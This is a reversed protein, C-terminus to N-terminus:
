ANKLKLIQRYLKFLAYAILVYIMLGTQIGFISLVLCSVLVLVILKDSIKYLLAMTRSFVIYSNILITITIKSKM